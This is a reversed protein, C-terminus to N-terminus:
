RPFQLANGIKIRVNYSVFILLFCWGLGSGASPMDLKCFQGKSEWIIDGDKLPKHIDFYSVVM